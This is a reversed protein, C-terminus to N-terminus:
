DEYGNQPLLIIIRMKFIFSLTLSTFERGRDVLLRCLVAIFGPLGGSGPVKVVSSVVVHFM